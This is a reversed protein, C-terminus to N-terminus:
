VNSGGLVKVDLVSNSERWCEWWEKSYECDVYESFYPGGRTFHVIDADSFNDYEGVLHNWSRPLEGVSSAWDFQHLHLGSSTNVYHKTLIRCKDNNFLMVSSWNKKPYSTQEQNLFKNGEVPEYEHKVVMVDYQHEMQGFLKSIDSRVLMDCDM